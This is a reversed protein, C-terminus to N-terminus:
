GGYDYTFWSSIIERETEVYIYTKLLTNWLVEVLVHIYM